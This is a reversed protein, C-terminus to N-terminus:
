AAAWYQAEHAAEQANGLKERPSKRPKQLRSLPFVASKSGNM